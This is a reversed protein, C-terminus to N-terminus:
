GKIWRSCFIKFKCDRYLNYHMYIYLKGRKSVERLDELDCKNGAIALIINHSANKKLENIWDKVTKFTSQLFLNDHM